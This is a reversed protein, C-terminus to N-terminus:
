WYCVNEEADDDFVFKNCLLADKSDATLRHRRGECVSDEETAEASHSSDLWCWSPYVAYFFFFFFFFLCELVVLLLTEVGFLTVFRYSLWSLYMEGDPLVVRDDTEGDFVM